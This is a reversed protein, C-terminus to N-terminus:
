LRWRTPGSNKRVCFSICSSRDRFLIRAFRGSSPRIGWIFALTKGILAPYEEGTRRAYAILLGFAADDTRGELREEQYRRWYGEVALRSVDGNYPYLFCAREYLQIATGRQLDWGAADDLSQALKAWVLANTPAVALM